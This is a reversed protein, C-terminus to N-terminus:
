RKVVCCRALEDHTTQMIHPPLIKLYGHGFTLATVMKGANRAIVQLLSPRQGDPGVVKIKLNKKGITGECYYELIIFYPHWLIANVSITIDKYDFILEITLSLLGILFADIILAILRRWFSAKESLTPSEVIM